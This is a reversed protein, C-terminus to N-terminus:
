KYNTVLVLGTSYLTLNLKTNPSKRRHKPQFAPIADPENSKVQLYCVADALAQLELDTTHEYKHQKLAYM